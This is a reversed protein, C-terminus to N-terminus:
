STSEVSPDETTAQEKVEEEQSLATAKQITNGKSHSQSSAASISPDPQSDWGLIAGGKKDTVWQFFQPKIFGNEDGASLVVGNASLFFKLGADMAKQLDIYVLIDSSNRM